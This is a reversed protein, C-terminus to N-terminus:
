RHSCVPSVIEEVSALIFPIVVILGAALELMLSRKLIKLKHSRCRCNTEAASISGYNIASAMTVMEVATENM